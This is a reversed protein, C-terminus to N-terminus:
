ESYMLYITNGVEVLFVAIRTLLLLGTIVAATTIIKSFQRTKTGQKQLNNRNLNEMTETNAIYLYTDRM